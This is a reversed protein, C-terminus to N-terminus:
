SFYKSILYMSSTYFSERSVLWNDFHILARTLAVEREFLDSSTKKEKTKTENQKWQMIILRVKNSQSFEFRRGTDGSILVFELSCYIIFFFGYSHSFYFFDCSILCNDRQFRAFILWLDHCGDLLKIREFRNIM